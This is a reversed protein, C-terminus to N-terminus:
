NGIVVIQHDFAGGPINGLNITKEFTKGGDSSRKFYVDRYGSSDDLWIMSINKGVAEFKPFESRGEDSSINILHNILTENRENGLYNSINTGLNSIFSNTTNGNYYNTKPSEFAFLSNTFEFHLYICHLLFLLIFGLPILTINM